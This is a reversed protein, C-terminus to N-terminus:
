QFEFLLIVHNNYVIKNEIVVDGRKPEYKSM